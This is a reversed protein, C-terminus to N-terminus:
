TNADDDDQDTTNDHRVNIMDTITQGADRSHQPQDPIDPSTPPLTGADAHNGISEVISNFERARDAYVHHGAGSIVQLM